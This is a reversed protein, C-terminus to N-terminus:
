SAMKIQSKLANARDPFFENDQKQKTFFNWYDDWDQSKVISRIKLIAESGQVAWRAGSIEMRDKVLHGCASEVVGSGIPYGKALYENYKMYDKHNKFYTIVKKFTEKKSKSLSGEMWENQLELIYSSVKGNLIFLLKEYVYNKAERSGKKHKVNAIEWIYELVHIIDLIMVKNEIERFIQKLITWLYLAGDMVCLLPVESFDEHQVEKKIAAMVEKKSQQISAIYRINKAKEKPSSNKTKDENEQPFVLNEAVEVAKRVNANIHYKVGVLAEKKKGKKDGKGPKSKISVGEKKIIPIGKGDFSVATFDTERGPKKISNRVEYYDEYSEWSSQAITEMAAVYLKLDFFKNLFEFGGYYSGKISLLNAMESLFYSYCRQPLNLFIDLPALTTGDIEYLYRIVKVKGFISFYSRQGLNKQRKAVGQATPVSEGYDGQNFSAFFLEMLLLGLELMNKFICSEAQHAEQNESTLVATLIQSFKTRCLEVCKEIEGPNKITESVVRLHSM